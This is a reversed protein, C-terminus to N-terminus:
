VTPAAPKFALDIAQFGLFEVRCVNVSRVEHIGTVAGTSILAGEPLIIQRDRCLEVLFSLSKLPGEPARAVTANGVVKGDIITRVNLSERIRGHWNPIEVGVVLGFNNGFDSIIAHPGLENISSLPSSAIEVGVYAAKVAAILSDILNLRSSSPLIATGLEFVVEAEVAAFGGEFIPVTVADSTSQVVSAMFIPGALQDADCTRRFADDIGGVKWGAVSDPWRRISSRQVRYADALSTPLAGPFRDLVAARQRAGVLESSIDSLAAPLSPNSIELNTAM